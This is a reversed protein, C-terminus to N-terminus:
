VEELSCNCWDNKLILSEGEEKSFEDADTKFIIGHPETGIHYKQEDRDMWTIVYYM